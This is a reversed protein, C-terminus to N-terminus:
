ALFDLRREIKNEATDDIAPHIPANINLTNQWQVLTYEEYTLVIYNFTFSKIFMKRCFTLLEIPDPVLHSIWTVHKSNGLCKTYIKM